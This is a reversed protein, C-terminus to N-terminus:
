DSQSAGGQTLTVTQFSILLHDEPLDGNAGTIGYSSIIAHTLKFDMFPTGNFTACGSSQFVYLHVTGFVEGTAEGKLLQVTDVTSPLTVNFPSSPGRGGAGGGAGGGPRTASATWTFTDM